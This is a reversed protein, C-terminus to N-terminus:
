WCFIGMTKVFDFFWNFWIRRSSEWKKLKQFHHIIKLPKRADPTNWITYAIHSKFSTLVSSDEPGGPITGEGSGENTRKDLSSPASTSVQSEQGKSSITRRKIESMTPAKRTIAMKLILGTIPSKACTLTRIEIYLPM